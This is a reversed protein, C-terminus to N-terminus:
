PKILKFQIFFLYIFLFFSIIILPILGLSIFLSSLVMSIQLLYSEGFILCLVGILVSLSLYDQLKFVTKYDLQRILLLYGPLGYIPMFSFIGSIWNINCTSILIVNFALSLSSPLQHGFLSLLLMFILSTIAITFNALSMMLYMYIENKIPNKFNRPYYDIAKPWCFGLAIGCISGYPDLYEVPDKSPKSTGNHDGFSYRLKQMLYGRVLSCIMVGPIMFLLQFISNHTNFIIQDTTISFTHSISITLFLFLYFM